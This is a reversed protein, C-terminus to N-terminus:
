VYKLRAKARFYFIVCFVLCLIIQYLFVYQIPMSGDGTPSLTNLPSINVMDMASLLMGSGYYLIIPFSIAIYRNPIFASVCLGVNSWLMGFILALLFYILCILLGGGVFQIDEFITKEFLTDFDTPVNEPLYPKGFIVSLAILFAVPISVALGGIISSCIIKEKLYSAKSKRTLVYRSFGNNIDDAFSFSYPISALAPAFLGFNSEVAFLLIYPYELKDAESFSFYIFNQYIPQMLFIFGFIVSILFNISSLTNKISLLLSKM